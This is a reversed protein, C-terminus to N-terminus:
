KYCMAYQATVNMGWVWAWAWSLKYAMNQCCIPYLLFNTSSTPAPAHIFIVAWKHYACRVARQRTSLINYQMTCQKTTTSLFVVYVRIHLRSNSTQSFSHRLHAESKPDLCPNMLNTINNSGCLIVFRFLLFMCFCLLM